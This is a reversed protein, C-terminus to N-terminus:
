YLIPFLNKSKYKNLFSAVESIVEPYHGVFLHGGEPYSIFRAHPIHEASYRAGDYTRFKDDATTLILTPAAIHELDYRPVFPAMLADNLTGLRRERIPLMCGLMRAVRTREDTNAYELVSKPTAFLAPIVSKPALRPTAWFLFDSKLATDILFKATRLTQTSMTSEHKQIIRSPYAIPVLLVLAATRQPYRLAFQMSSPAGASAGLIAARPIHLADLLCAHADAQAAASSEAPMPTRLYGFRSVAIVRFGSHILGESFVLGQDYGGGAGHVVLVPPGNGAIAYEIPGCPTQAIKSGASIRERAQHIDHQYRAVVSIMIGVILLAIIVAVTSRIHIKKM